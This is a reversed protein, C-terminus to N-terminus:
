EARLSIQPDVAAARRAPRYSALLAVSGLAVAIAGFLLPDFPEVGRVLLQLLRAIGSVAILGVLIGLGVIRLSQLLVLRSVDRTRAGVAMRIG